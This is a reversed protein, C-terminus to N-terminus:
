FLSRNKGITWIECSPQDTWINSGLRQGIIQSELRELEGRNAMAEDASIVDLPAFYGDREFDTRISTRTQAVAAQAM